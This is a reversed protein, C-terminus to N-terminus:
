VEIMESSQYFEIMSPLRPILVRSTVTDVIAIPQAIVGYSFDVINDHIVNGAQEYLEDLDNSWEYYVSARHSGARVLGVVMYYRYETPDNPFGHVPAEGYKDQMEDIIDMRKDDNM